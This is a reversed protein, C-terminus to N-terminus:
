QCCAHFAHNPEQQRRRGNQRNTRRFPKVSTPLIRFEFDTHHNVPYDNLSESTHSRALTGQNSEEHRHRDIEFGLIVTNASYQRTRRSSFTFIPPEDDDTALM